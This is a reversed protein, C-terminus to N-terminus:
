SAAPALWLVQGGEGDPLTADEDIALGCVSGDAPTQKMQYGRTAVAPVSSESKWYHCFPLDEYLSLGSLVANAGVYLGPVYGASDVAAYWAKCYAIVDAAGADASCGELDCWVNVGAPFGTSGAGMAAANGYETGLEATPLWGSQAVHQVPMLALGAGLIGCAEEYTLDGAHQAGRSLYRLCFRYGQDFFRGATAPDIVSDSDFGRAMGIPSQVKGDLITM